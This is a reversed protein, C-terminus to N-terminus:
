ELSKRLAGLSVLSSIDEVFRIREPHDSALAGRLLIPSLDLNEAGRYTSLVCYEACYGSLILTDIGLKQLEEELPTKNFSNGYTKHIHLDGPLIKLREPLDYGPAGPVLGNEPEMHQVCVVPLHHERFLAIAANIYPIAQNLSEATAPSEDFFAKQVDIVLLAPKM